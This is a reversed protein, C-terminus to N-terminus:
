TKKRVFYLAGQNHNVAQQHLFSFSKKKKAFFHFHKVFLLVREHVIDFLAHM